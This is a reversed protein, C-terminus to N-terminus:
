LIYSNSVFKGFGRVRLGKGMIISWNKDLKLSLSFDDAIFVQRAIGSEFIIGELLIQAEIDM